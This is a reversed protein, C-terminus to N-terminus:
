EADARPFQVVKRQPEAAALQSEGDAKKADRSGVAMQPAQQGQDTLNLQIVGKAVREIKEPAVYVPQAPEPKPEAIALREQEKRQQESKALAVNFDLRLLNAAFRDNAPDVALAWSFYRRALDERGLKAYAVGIGNIADGSVAPNNRAFQFYSIAEAIRGQKLSERGQDLALVMPDAAIARQGDTDSRAMTSGGGWISQCGALATSAALFLAFKGLNRM